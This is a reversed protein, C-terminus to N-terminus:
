SSAGAGLVAARPGRRVEADGIHIGPSALQPDRWLPGQALWEEDLADM